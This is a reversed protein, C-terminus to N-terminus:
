GPAGSRCSRFTFGAPTSTFDRILPHVRNPDFHPGRLDDFRDIIGVDTPNRVFEAGTLDAYEKLFDVGVYRSHAALPVVYELQSSPVREGMIAVQERGRFVIAATVRYVVLTLAAVWAFGAAPWAAELFLGVALGAAAGLLVKAFRFGLIGFVVGLIGGFLAYHLGPVVLDLLWGTSAAVAAGAVIRWAAPKSTGPRRTADTIAEGIGFFLAGGVFGVLTARGGGSSGLAAGGAAGYLAGAIGAQAVQATTRSAHQDKTSPM